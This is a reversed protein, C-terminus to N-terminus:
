SGVSAVQLEAAVARLHDRVHKPQGEAQVLMKAAFHALARDYTIPDM